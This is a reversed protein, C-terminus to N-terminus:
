CHCKSARPPKGRGVTRMRLNEVASWMRLLISSRVPMQWSDTRYRPNYIPFAYTIHNCGVELQVINRCGHCRQWNETTALDLIAHLATDQPCDGGHEAAKCMTCTRTGCRTCTAIDGEIEEAKIFRACDSNSCYTRNPTNCEITREEFREKISKTLFIAVSDITIPQRCCRPPFLSEDTFSLGFLEHLCDRCYEHGCPGSIVDFYKKTDGCATCRRNINNAAANSQVRGTSSEGNVHQEGGSNLLEIGKEESLYRGALKALLSNDLTEQDGCAQGQPVPRNGDLCQALVRDGTAVDEESLAAAMIEGDNQVANAISQAMCRDSIMSRLNELNESALQLALEADTHEGERQKGPLRSRLNDVDAMQLELIFAASADDVGDLSYSPQAAGAM